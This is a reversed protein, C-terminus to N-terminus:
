CARTRVDITVSGGLDRSSVDFHDELSPWWDTRETRTDHAEQRTAYWETAIEAGAGDTVRLSVFGVLGTGLAGISFEAVQASPWRRLIERCAREVVLAGHAIQLLTLRREIELEVAQLTAEDAVAQAQQKLARDWARYPAPARTFLADVFEDISRTMTAGM